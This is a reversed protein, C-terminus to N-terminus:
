PRKGPAPKDVAYNGEIAEELSPAASESHCGCGCALSDACLSFSVGRHAGPPVPIALGTTGGMMVPPDCNLCKRKGDKEIVTHQGCKSCPEDLYGVMRTM